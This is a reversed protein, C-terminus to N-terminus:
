SLPDLNLDALATTIPTLTQKLGLLRLPKQSASRLRRGLQARGSEPLTSKTEAVVADLLEPKEKAILEWTRVLLNLFTDDTIAEEGSAKALEEFAERSTQSVVEPDPTDTMAESLSRLLTLGAVDTDTRMRASQGRVKRAADADLEEAIEIAIDVGQLGSIDPDVDNSADIIAQIRPSQPSAELYELIRRRAEDPDQSGADALLHMERLSSRISREVNRYIFKTLTKGALAAFENLSVSEYDEPLEALSRKADRHSFRCTYDYLSSRIRAHNAGSKFVTYGRSYDLTYDSIVGVTLLRHIARETLSGGSNGGFFNKPIDVQGPQELPELETLLQDLGEQEKEEGSWSNTHFYLSRTIDDDRRNKNHASQWERIKGLDVRGELIDPEREYLESSLLVVSDAPHGDRGARGAEQYFNEISPPLNYHVTYRLHDIDIGTGFAKTCVLTDIEGNRLGSLADRRLAKLEASNSSSKSHFGFVAGGTIAEATTRVGQGWETDDVGHKGRTHPCFILGPHGSAFLDTVDRGHKQAIDRMAHALYQPKEDSRCKYIKFSLEKRDFSKPTILADADEIDLERQIDRLVTQSATGTLALLPPRQGRRTSLERANRAINLYAPRFDHGWESVCHAEDISIVSVPRSVVAARLERRFKDIQLREPSIYIFAFVGAALQDRFRTRDAQSDNGTVLGATSVGCRRLNEVQDEMLATLPSIVMGTGPRLFSALQFVISKGAGTPLLIVTDLGQLGREIAEFQGERFGPYGWIRELVFEACGRGVNVPQDDGAAYFDPNSDFDFATPVVLWEGSQLPDTSKRSFAITIDAEDPDSTLILKPLQAEVGYL